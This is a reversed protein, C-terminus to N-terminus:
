DALTTAPTAAILYQAKSESLIASEAQVITCKLATEVSIKSSSFM